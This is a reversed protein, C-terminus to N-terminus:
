RSTLDSDVVHRGWEIVGFEIRGPFLSEIVRAFAHQRETLKDRGLRHTRKDRGVFKMERMVIRGDPFVAIADPLGSWRNHTAAKIKQLMDWLEGTLEVCILDPSMFVASHSWTDTWVALSAGEALLERAALAGPPISGEPTQVYCETPLKNPTVKADHWRQGPKLYIVYRYPESGGQWNRELVPVEIDGYMITRRGCTTSKVPHHHVAPLLHASPQVSVRQARVVKPIVRREWIPEGAETRWANPNMPSLGWSKGFPTWVLREHPCRRIFDLSAEADGPTRLRDSQIHKECTAVVEDRNYATGPVFEHWRKAM